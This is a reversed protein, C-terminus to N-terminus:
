LPALINIYFGGKGFGNVAYEFRLTKDYYTVFDIGAGASFLFRNNYTNEPRAYSNWVYGCDAFINFYFAYHIKNFKKLPLLPVESVTPPLLTFKLLNRYLFLHEGDVTNYEFGHMNHTYGLARYYLYSYASHRSLRMDAGTAYHFRRGLEFYHRYSPRLETSFFSGEGFPVSVTQGALVEFYSGKLPYSKSDRKDRTLVYELTFCRFDKQGRFLYDPNISIVTDAMRYEKYNLFVNHNYYFYPRYTYNLTAKTYKQAPNLDHKFILPENYKTDIFIENQKSYEFEAGAFHRRNRDLAVNKYSLMFQEAFGFVLSVKLNEKRGFCNLQEVSGGITTRSLDGEKLWASFNRDEFRLILSPWTYWREEVTILIILEREGAPIRQITVYNFLSTNILNERSRSVTEDLEHLPITDGQRFMLERIIIHEKTKRNGSIYIAKILYSSGQSLLFASQLFLLASMILRRKM